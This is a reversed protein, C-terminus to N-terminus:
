APKIRCVPRGEKVKPSVDDRLIGVEQGAIASRVDMDNLRLSAIPQEDYDVPFEISIRDGVNLTGNEVQVSFAKKWV